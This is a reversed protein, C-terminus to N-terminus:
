FLNIYVIFFILNELYYDICNLFFIKKKLCILWIDCKNNYIRM